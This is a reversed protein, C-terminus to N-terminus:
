NELYMRQRAAAKNSYWLRISIDLFFKLKKQKKNPQYFEQAPKGLRKALIAGPFAFTL